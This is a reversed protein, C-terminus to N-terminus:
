IAAGPETVVLFGLGLDGTARRRAKSVFLARDIHGLVHRGLWVPWDADPLNPVEGPVLWSVAWSVTRPLAVSLRDRLEGVSAVFEAPRGIVAALVIEDGGFTSLCAAPWPRGALWTRSLLGAQRMLENGALHGWLAPDGVNAQAVHEALGDVDGIAIGLTRGKHLERRAHDPWDRYFDPWCVLGTSPEDRACRLWGGVVPPPTRQWAYRTAVPPRSGTRPVPLAIV